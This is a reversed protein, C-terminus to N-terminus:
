AAEKVTLETTQCRHFVVATHFRPRTRDPDEDPKPKSVITLSIGHEGKKVVRNQALWRKFTFWDKYPECSCGAEEAALVLAQANEASFTDFHVAQEATMREKGAM